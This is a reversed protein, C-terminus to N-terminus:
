LAVSRAAVEYLKGRGGVAREGIGFLKRRLHLAPRIDRSRAQKQLLLTSSETRKSQRGSGKQLCEERASLVKQKCWTRTALNERESGTCSVDRLRCRLAESRPFHVELFSGM